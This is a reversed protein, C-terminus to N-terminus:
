KLGKLFKYINAATEYRNEGSFDIIKEGPVGETGGGAVYVNKAKLTSITERLYIPAHLRRALSEVMPVDAYSYVVIAHKLLFDEEKEPQPKLFNEVQKLFEEWGGPKARLVRPCDKKSWDYHQKICSPFSLLTPVEKILKAVLWAANLEAQRIDGDSNEAIEIGISQRNGTGNQGDGAHWGFENLPLHWYAEVSDVTYHYGALLDPTTKLWRSHMAAGAGKATNATNHVTIYKPIMYQGYAGSQSYTVPRNRKGVPIFDQTISVNM